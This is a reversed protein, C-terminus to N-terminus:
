EFKLEARVGQQGQLEHQKNILNLQIQIDFLQEFVALRNKVNELGIAKQHSLNRNTVKVTSPLGVGNDEVSCYVDDGARFVSIELHNEAKKDKFGHKIANEILPQLIFPPVQLLSADIKEVVQYSFPRNIRELELFWKSLELEDSLPIIEKNLNKIVARLYESFNQLYSIAQDPDHERIMGQLSHLCNDIMHPKLEVETMDRRLRVEELELAFRELMEESLKKEVERKEAEIIRTRYGLVSTFISIEVFIAVYIPIKHGIAELGFFNFDVYNNIINIITAVVLACTGAIIFNSLPDKIKTILYATYIALLFVSIEFYPQISEKFDLNIFLAVLLIILFGIIYRYITTMYRQHFPSRESLKLIGDIFLFYSLAALGLVLFEYEIPIPKPHYFSTGFVSDFLFIVISTADYFKLSFIISVIYLMYYLFFKERTHFYQFIAFPILFVLVGMFAHDSLYGICNLTMGDECM